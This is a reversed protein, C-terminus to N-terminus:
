YTFAEKKTPESVRRIDAGLGALKEVFNVYGRDIHHLQSVETEDDIALGALIVAAGARLDTAEVRAGSLQQGGIVFASREEVRINANMRLFENVHMFRNEFITETIIGVGKSFLLLAMLQAQMDTPFGPHPLTKVDVAQLERGEEVYVRLGNDVEEITVGMERMKMVVPKLHEEIAGEVIVDGRTIAAAVMFTGAEIRDPIICHTAGTLKEVGTIRIINTGAGRVRAGMANLYNALDVIEPERAANEITTVGEALVAAMMINETAGVSAMDLFIHKGQLRGEISAEIYGQGLKVTAGMAEFGKLHLDIPRAGIECGGPLAIRAKGMRALLPGMVLFSARMKRVLDYPAEVAEIQRADVHLSGDEYTSTVGLEKLVKTITEVDDLWPVEHLVSPVDEGLLTAAIIPLVANKAGDIKVTGVLPKGGHV